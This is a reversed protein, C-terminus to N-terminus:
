ATAQASSECSAWSTPKVTSLGIHLAGAIKGNTLGRAVPSLTAERATLPEM